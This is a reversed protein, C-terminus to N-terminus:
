SSKMNHLPRKRKFFLGAAGLVILGGSFSSEPVRKLEEALLTKLMSSLIDDSQPQSNQLNVYTVGLEPFYWWQSGHGIADGRHGWARGIGEFERSTLGLGYKFSDGVGIDVFNLMQNLSDSSLLKGGFLAQAFKTLDQTNSVIAGATWGFSLNIPTVDDLTGNNDYDL